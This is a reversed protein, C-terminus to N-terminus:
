AGDLGSTFIAAWQGVDPTTLVDVAVVWKVWQFGRRGLAVLRLPAGHGHSLVEGAMATALLTQRAEALPLSWRYGTVSRFSVYAAGQLPQARALLESIAIGQWEQESYWGGTCDITARITSQPLQALDNMSIQLDTKVAGGVTLRYQNIDIVAPRDLMWMTVPIAGEQLRSGTFRRKEGPTNAAKQGTEIGGWVIAGGVLMGALRLLSRRDSIDRGKLPRYRLLLHWLLLGMLIFGATTHLIMGNPYNLPRQVVVWWVGLGVTALAALTTLIGVLASLRQGKPTLMLPTVRRLKLALVGLIALGLAGHVVFLWHGDPQGMLFSWLGTGIGLLVIALLSWDVVRARM